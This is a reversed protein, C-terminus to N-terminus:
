IGLPFAIVYGRFSKFAADCLTSVLYQSEEREDIVEQEWMGKDCPTICHSVKNVLREFKKVLSIFIVLLRLTNM